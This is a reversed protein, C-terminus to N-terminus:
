EKGETIEGLLERALRVTCGIECSEGETAHCVWCERAGTNEAIYQLLALRLIEETYDM